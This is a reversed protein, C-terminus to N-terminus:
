AGKIGYLAVHTYQNFDGASATGPVLDIQTIANTNRWNGSALAVYPTSTGNDQFGGISRTTKYINTNTYDLIDIIAPTFVNALGSSTTCVVGDIFSINADAYTGPSGGLGTLGHQSYNSGSDNNFRIGARSLTTEGRVLMRLQLHKYTQPISSFTITASGGAGVTVTAISEYSSANLAPQMSSAYIGLIPM